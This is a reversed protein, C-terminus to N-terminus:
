ESFFKLKGGDNSWIPELAKEKQEDRSSIDRGAEIVSSSDYANESHM